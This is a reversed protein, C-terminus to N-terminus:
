DRITFFLGRYSDVSYDPFFPMILNRDPIQWSDTLDYGLNDMGSKVSDLKEVRCAVAIHHDRQVAYYTDRESLPVRNIIVWRPHHRSQKLLELLPPELYHMSGSVLLVDCQELNDLQDVFRLKTEQRNKALSRGADLTRPLDYVTWTLDKPIQLYKEYCYFLNGVNGGLDLVKRTRLLCEQLRFLVPYDSLRASQGKNLHLAVNSPEEHSGLGIKDAALRAEQMTAFPRQFGAFAELFFRSWGHRNLWRLFGAVRKRALLSHPITM